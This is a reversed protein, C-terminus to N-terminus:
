WQKPLLAEELAGLPIEKKLVNLADRQCRQTLVSTPSSVLEDGMPAGWQTFM